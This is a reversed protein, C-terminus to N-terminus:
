NFLVRAEGQKAVLDDMRKLLKDRRALLAEIQGKDLLDKMAAELGEFRLARLREVLKRDFSAPLKSEGKLLDKRDLFARSHDILVVNWSSDVLFNGANRDDNFILNDFVKMRSIQHSFEPTNPTQSEVSKYVKCGEMWLQLSGLDSEVRRVVTPPVMDLGLLKDLEYAAVEAQYSEWYGSHRGRKIPKYAAHFVVDGEKLTAKRPKTVGQGVDEVEVIAADRLWQEYKAHDGVWIKADEAKSVRTTGLTALFFAASLFLSRGFRMPM